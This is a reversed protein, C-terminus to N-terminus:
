NWLKMLDIDAPRNESPLSGLVKQTQFIHPLFLEVLRARMDSPLPPVKQRTQLRALTRHALDAIKRLARSKASREFAVIAKNYSNKKPKIHLSSPTFSDDAGIHRYIRRMVEHPAQRVEDYLIVMFRSPEFFHLYSELQEGYFGRKALEDFYRNDYRKPFGPEQKLFPALGETLPHNPLQNHRISWYYASVMREVPHRLLAIFKPDKTYPPLQEPVTPDLM